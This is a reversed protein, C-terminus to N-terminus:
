RLTLSEIVWISTIVEICGKIGDKRKKIMKIQSYNLISNSFNLNSNEGTLKIM